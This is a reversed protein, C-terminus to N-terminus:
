FGRVVLWAKICLKRWSKVRVLNSDFILDEGKQKGVSIEFNLEGKKHNGWHNIINLNEGGLVKLKHIVTQRLSTVSMNFTTDAVNESTQKVHRFSLVQLALFINKIESQFSKKNKLYGVKLM